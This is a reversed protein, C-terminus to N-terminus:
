KSFIWINDQLPELNKRIVVIMRLRWFKMWQHSDTYRRLNHVRIKSTNENFETALVAHAGTQKTLVGIGVPRGTILWHKIRDHNYKEKLVSLGLYDIAKKVDTCAGYRAGTYDVLREYEPGGPYISNDGTLFQYANLVMVLQCEHYLQEDQLIM